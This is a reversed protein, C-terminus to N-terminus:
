LTAGAHASADQALREGRRALTWDNGDRLLLGEGALNTLATTVSPRKAGVAKALLDHTLPLTVVYGQPSVTGWRNALYAFLVLLRDEIRRLHGIALTAALARSRQMVRALLAETIEPWRGAAVAFERDLVALVTPELVTWSSRSTVLQDPPEEQWPRLLDGVGLLELSVGGRLTVQRTLLGGLVLYGLDGPRQGGPPAWPGPPLTAAHAIAHAQAQQREDAPVREALELDHELLRVVPGRRQAKATM